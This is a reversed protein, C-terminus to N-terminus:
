NELKRNELEHLVNINTQNPIFPKYTKNLSLLKRFNLYDIIADEEIMIINSKNGLRDKGDKKVNSVWYDSKTEPDFYNSKHEYSYTGNHKKLSIGNFYLTNGSKSSYVYGIWAPGNDNYNRDNEGIENKLEIFM